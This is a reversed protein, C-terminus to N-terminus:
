ETRERFDDIAALMSLRRVGGLITLAQMAELLDGLSARWGDAKTEPHGERQGDHMRLVDSAFGIRFM